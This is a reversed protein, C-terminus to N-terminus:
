AGRPPPPTPAVDIGHAGDALVALRVMPGPLSLPGATAPPLADALAPCQAAACCALGMGGGTDGCPQGHDQHHHPSSSAEQAPSADAHGACHLPTAHAQSIQQQIAVAASAHRVPAGPLALLVLALLGAVVRRFRGMGRPM